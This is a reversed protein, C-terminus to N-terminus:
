RRPKACQSLALANGMRRPASAVWSLARQFLGRPLPMPTVITTALHAPLPPPSVVIAALEPNTSRVPPAIGLTAAAAVRDREILDLLLRAALASAPRHEPSKELLKRMVAELLPDVAVGPARVAIAPIPELLNARAVDVGDGDFPLKGSLMEYVVVGLAFLDLRHDIAQGTVYEPAMYQPTGLVMGLQTLKEATGDGDRLTAIGFDVIRVREDPEGAREVIVNDPKFDRHVLGHNHAHALGDCLQRILRVCRATALPAERLLVDGLTPGQVLDMVLYHIGNAEGFDIISIVNPHALKGALQAERQFRRLLTPDSVFDDRLVKIAVERRLKVHSARYVTGMSGSGLVADLRYRDLVDGVEVGTERSSQQVHM